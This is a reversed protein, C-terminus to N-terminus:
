RCHGFAELAMFTAIAITFIDPLFPSSMTKARLRKENPAFRQPSIGRGPLEQARPPYPDRLYPIHMFILAPAGDNLSHSLRVVQVQPCAAWISPAISEPKESCWPEYEQQNKLSADNLGLLRIGGYVFTSDPELNAVTLPEFPIRQQARHKLQEQLKSLFCRYRGIDRLQERTLDNNGPLFYLRRVTLRDLAEVLRDLVSDLSRSNSRSELPAIECQTPPFTINRLGLDGTYVVFDVPRGAATLCNITSVAWDLASYNASEDDDFLHADTIQVFTIQAQASGNCRRGAFGPM